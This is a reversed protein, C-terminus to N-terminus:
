FKFLQYTMTYTGIFTPEFRFHLVGNSVSVGVPMTKALQPSYYQATALTDASSVGAVTHQVFLRNSGTTTFTFSGEAWFKLVRAEGNFVLNGQADWAQVGQPMDVGSEWVFVYSM